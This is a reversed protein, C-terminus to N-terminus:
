GVDATLEAAEIGAVACEEDRDPQDGSVGVAGVISGNSDRILVGGRVPFVRGESAAFLASYFSPHAEARQAMTRGGAGMGLTGWAKGSAIQPRLIGAGDERRFAVLHGGADLVAVTMPNMKRERAYRLAVDVIRAAANSPLSIDM